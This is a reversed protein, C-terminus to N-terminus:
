YSLSNDNSYDDSVNNIIFKLATMYKCMSGIRNGIFLRYGRNTSLVNHHYVKNNKKDTVKISQMDKKLKGFQNLFYNKNYTSEELSGLLEKYIKLFKRLGKIKAFIKYYESQKPQSNHKSIEKRLTVLYDEHKKATEKTL